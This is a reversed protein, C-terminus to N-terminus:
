DDLFNMFEEETGFPNDTPANIIQRRAELAEDNTEQEDDREQDDNTEPEDAPKDESEQPKANFAPATPIELDDEEEGGEESKGDPEEPEEIKTAAGREERENAENVLSELEMMTPDEEPPQEKPQTLLKPKPPPEVPEVPEDPVTPTEEPQEEEVIEENREEVTTSTQKPMDFSSFTLEAAYADDPFTSWFIVRFWDCWIKEVDKTMAFETQKLPEDAPDVVEELSENLACIRESEKTKTLSKEAAQCITLIKSAYDAWRKVKCESISRLMNREKVAFMYMSVNEVPQFRMAQYIAILLREIAPVFEAKDAVREVFFKRLFLFIRNASFYSLKASTSSINSILGSCLVALMCSTKFDTIMPNTVIEIMLDAYTGRHPATKSVFNGTFPKNLEILASYMSTIQSLIFIVISHFFSFKGYDIRYQYMALLAAVYQNSYGHNVIYELFDKSKSIVVYLLSVFHEACALVRDVTSTWANRNTVEFMIAFGEHMVAVGINESQIQAKWSGCFHLCPIAYAILSKLFLLGQSPRTNLIITPMIEFVTKMLPGSSFAEMALVYPSPDPMRILGGLTGAHTIFLLTKVYAIRLDLVSSQLLVGPADNLRLLRQLTQILSELPMLDSYKARKYWPSTKPEEASVCLLLCLFKCVYLYNWNQSNEVDSVAGDKAFVDVCTKVLLAFNDPRATFIATLEPLLRYDLDSTFGDIVINQWIKHDLPCPEQHLVDLLSSVRSASVVGGM